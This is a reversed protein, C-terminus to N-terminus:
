QGAMINLVSVFDAIDIKYDGNVDANGKVEQGAMANLVSVADAIDVKGDLNVDGRVMTAYGFVVKGKYTSNGDTTISKLSSDFYGGAPEVINIDDGVLLSGLNLIAENYSYKSYLTLRTSSGRVYLTATGRYDRMGYSGTFDITPGNITCTIDNGAMYLGYGNNATGVLSVSGIINISENSEIVSYRANITNNGVFKVNLGDYETNCIGSGKEGDTNTLTVETLTLTNSSPNFKITGSTLGPPMIYDTCNQRIHTEGVYIGYYDLKVSSVITTYTDIITPTAKKISNEFYVYGDSPNWYTNDNSIDTNSNSFVLNSSCIDGSKEGCFKYYGDFHYYFTLTHGSRVDTFGHLKGYVELAQLNFGVDARAVFANGATSIVTLKGNGEFKTNAEINIATNTSQIACGDNVKVTLGEIGYNAIAPYAKTNFGGTLELTKTSKTWTWPYSTGSKTSSATRVPEGGVCLLPWVNLASVLDGASDVYGKESQFKVDRTTVKCDDFSVSKYGYIAGANCDIQVMSNVFSLTTSGPTGYFGKSVGIM